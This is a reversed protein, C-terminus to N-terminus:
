IKCVDEIFIDQQKLPNIGMSPISVLFEFIFSMRHSPVVRTMFGFRILFFFMLAPSIMNWNGSQTTQWASEKKRPRWRGMRAM